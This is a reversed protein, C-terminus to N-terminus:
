LPKLQSQKSFYEIIKEESRKKIQRINAKTTKHMDCLLNLVETPTNKGEEQYLYLTRLIDRDRESLTNLADNMMKANVSEFIEDEVDQSEIPPDVKASELSITKAYYEKLLVKLENRAVTSLWAKFPGDDVAEKPFSFGFPKEYFKYFTNNIVANLVHENYLGISKLAHSVVSTLFKSYGKYIQTFANVSSGEDSMKDSIALQIDEIEGITM